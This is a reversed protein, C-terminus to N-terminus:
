DTCERDGAVKDRITNDDMNWVYARDRFRITVSGSGFDSQIYPCDYVRRPNLDIQRGNVIPLSRQKLDFSLVAAQKDSHNLWVTLVGQTLQHRLNAVNKAFRDLSDFLTATGAMILVPARWNNLRYYHDHEWQGPSTAGTDPDVGKFAVYADGVRAMLWGDREVLHERVSNAVYVRMAEIDKRGLNAQAIMLNKHQVAIQQHNAVSVLADKKRGASTLCQPYVRVNPGTRFIIGHWRNQAHIAAYHSNGWEYAGDKVIVSEALGPDVWWSGMVYDPTCYTYRLARTDEADLVYWCSHPLYDPLKFIGTMKAPRRSVYVYSGRQEPDILMRVIKPLRYGTTALCYVFGSHTHGHKGDTWPGEGLLVNGMQGYSDRDGFRSYKGQYVRSKGGGRVSELQEVAWDAWLVDLLMTMKRQVVADDTFDALNVIEPVAYKGYISSACEVMLGRAVREDAYARYYKTWARVHDAATHGDRLPRDKYEPLSQIAQLALFANSLDMLDHNESGQIFWVYRPDAREVTSKSFAYNWLLEHMLRETELDLRGAFRGDRSNFLFYTRVWLRMQWKANADALEPTMEPADKLLDGYAQRLILNAEPLERGLWLRAMAQFLPVRNRGAITNQCLRDVGKEAALEVRPCDSWTAGACGVLSAWLFVCYASCAMPRMERVGQFKCLISELPFVQILPVANPPVTLDPAVPCIWNDRSVSCPFSIPDPRYKTNLLKKELRKVTRALQETGQEVRRLAQGVGADDRYGLAAAVATASYGFRRRALYAAVEVDFHRAVAAVIAALTPRLRLHGLEPVDPDEPREGLLRRVRDVFAPSGLLM